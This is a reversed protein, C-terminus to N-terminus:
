ASGIILDSRPVVCCLLVIGDAEEAETVHARSMKKVAACSGSRVRMKCAGCGGGFCGCRVPGCRARTMAELVVENEKCFFVVNFEPAEVRYQKEDAM